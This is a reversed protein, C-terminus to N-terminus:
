NLALAPASLALLPLLVFFAAVGPKRVARQAMRVWPNEGGGFSFQWRNINTGLLALGAPMAFLSVTVAMIAAVIVGMTASVLLAGPAILLAGLMGVSLATGAFVVTRGARAISEIVATHVDAGRALEERFRSVILLSYDVGLALGIMTVMNLALADVEVSENVLGMLATGIRTVLLGCIAPVLAALP